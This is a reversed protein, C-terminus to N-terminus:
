GKGITESMVTECESIRFNRLCLSQREIQPIVESNGPKPPTRDWPHPRLSREIGHFVPHTKLTVRESMSHTVNAGFYRKDALLDGIECYKKLLRELWLSNSNAAIQERLLSTQM